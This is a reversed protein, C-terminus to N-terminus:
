LDSEITDGIDRTIDCHIYIVTCCLYPQRFINHRYKM